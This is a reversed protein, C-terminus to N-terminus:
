EESIESVIVESQGYVDFSLDIQLESLLLMIQWDFTEGSNSGTFWGILCETSGGSTRLNVFFSQHQRIKQLLTMVNEALSYGQQIDYKYSWYTEKHVGQLMAGDSSKRQTGVRWSFQPIMSLTESVAEPALNPHRIQLSISFKSEHM